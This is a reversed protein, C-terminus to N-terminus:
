VKLKAAVCKGRGASEAETVARSGGTAQRSCAICTAGPHGKAGGKEEQEGEEQQEAAANMLCM